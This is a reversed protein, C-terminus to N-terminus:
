RRQIVQLPLSNDALDGYASQVARRQLLRLGELGIGPLPRIPGQEYINTLIRFVPFRLLKGQHEVTITDGPSLYLDMETVRESVIRKVDIPPLFFREGSEPNVRIIRVNPSYHIRSTGALDAGTYSCWNCLLALIRPAGDPVSTFAVRAQELIQRYLGIAELRRGEEAELMALSLTAPWFDRNFDRAKELSRRADALRGLKEEVRGVGGPM